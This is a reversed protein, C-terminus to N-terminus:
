EEATTKAKAAKKKLKDAYFKFSEQFSFSLRNLMLCVCFLGAMYHRQLTHTHTEIESAKWFYAATSGEQTQRFLRQEGVLNDRKM